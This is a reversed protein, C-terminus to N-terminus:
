IQGGGGAFDEPAPSWDTPATGFELKPSSVWCKSGSTGPPLVLNFGAYCLTTDEPITYVGYIRQWGQVLDKSLPIHYPYDKNVKNWQTQGDKTYVIRHEYGAVDGINEVYLWISFTLNKGKADNMSLTTQTKDDANIIFASNYKNSTGDVNDGTLKISNNGFKQYTNDIFKDQNFSPTLNEFSGSDLLLNKGM